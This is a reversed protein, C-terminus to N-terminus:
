SLLSKKLTRSHTFCMIHCNPYSLYQYLTDSINNNIMKPVQLKLGNKKSECIYKAM